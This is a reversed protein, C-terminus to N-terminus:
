LLHLGHILLDTQEFEPVREGERMKNRSFVLMAANYNDKLDAQDMMTMM